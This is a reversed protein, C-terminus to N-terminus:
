LIIVDSESCSLEELIVPITDKLSSFLKNVPQKFMVFGGDYEEPGNDTLQWSEYNIYDVYGEEIDEHLLQDGCGETICVLVKEEKIYFWVSKM